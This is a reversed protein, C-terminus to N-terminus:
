VNFSSYVVNFIVKVIWIHASILKIVGVHTSSSLNTKTPTLTHNNMGPVDTWIDFLMYIWEWAMNYRVLGVTESCSCVQKLNCWM